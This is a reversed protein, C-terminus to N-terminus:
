LGTGPIESLGPSLGPTVSTSVIESKLGFNKHRIFERILIM